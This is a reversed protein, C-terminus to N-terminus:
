EIRVGDADPLLPIVRADPVCARVAAAAAETGEERVWVLVSPGAGSLTVGFCPLNGDLARLQGLMPTLAARDPEHM